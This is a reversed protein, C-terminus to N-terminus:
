RGDDSLRVPGKAVQDIAHEFLSVVRNEDGACSTTFDDPHVFNEAFWPYAQPDFAGKLWDIVARVTPSKRAGAHFYYHVPFRLHPLPSLPILASTIARTYSPLIAIGAGNAAAYGQTLASNTRISTSASPRDAGLLMDIATMNYGPAAQEVFVHNRLDDISKPMGHVALYDQSAFMMFHLTALKAVILDPNQPPRFAIGVDASLSRDHALDYDFQLDITLPSLAMALGPIRPTLWSGGLGETCAITIRGPVLLGDDGDPGGDVRAKSMELVALYLTAGSETLSAGAAHRRILTRGYSRELRGLHTRVTNVSVNLARAASRLSGSEGLALLYRLDSWDLESATKTSERSLTNV